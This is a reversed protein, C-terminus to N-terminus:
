QVKCNEDIREIAKGHMEASRYRMLASGAGKNQFSTKTAVRQMKLASGEPVLIATTCLEQGLYGAIHMHGEECALEEPTFSLGLPKRLIEERLAM